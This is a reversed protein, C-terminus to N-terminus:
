PVNLDRVPRGEPDTLVGQSGVVVVEPPERLYQLQIEFRRPATTDDSDMRALFEGRSIEILKNLARSIGTNAQTLVKVRPDKKEYERCIALSGDKSGDDIILFEFDTFTQQLISEIAEAVYKEVNYVPM